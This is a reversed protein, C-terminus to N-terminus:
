KVKQWRSFKLNMQGEFLANGSFGGDAEAWYKGLLSLPLRAATVVDGSDSAPSFPLEAQLFGKILYSNHKIELEKKLAKSDIIEWKANLYWLGPIQGPQEYAPSYTTVTARFVGETVPAFASTADGEVVYDTILTGDANISEKGQSIIQCNTITWTVTEDLFKKEDAEMIPPLLFQVALVILLARFFCLRGSKM